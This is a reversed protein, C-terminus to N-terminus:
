RNPRPLVSECRMFSLIGKELVPKLIWQLDCLAVRSMKSLFRDGPAPLKRRERLVHAVRAPCEKRRRHVIAM